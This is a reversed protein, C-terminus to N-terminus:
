EDFGDADPNPHSTLARLEPPEEAASQAYTSQAAQRPGSDDRTSM